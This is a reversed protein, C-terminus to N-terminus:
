IIELKLSLAKLAYMYFERIIVKEVELLDEDYELGLVKSKISEHLKMISGRLIEPSVDSSTIQRKIRSIVNNPQKSFAEFAAFEHYKLLNRNALNLDIINQQDHEQFSSLQYKGKDKVVVGYTIANLFDEKMLVLDQHSKIQNEVKKMLDIVSEVRRNSQNITTVLRPWSELATLLGVQSNENIKKFADMKFAENEWSNLLENIRDKFHSLKQLSLESIPENTDPLQNIPFDFVEYYQINEEVYFPRLTKLILANKMVENARQHAAEIFPVKIDGRVEKPIPSPLEYIWNEKNSQSLHIGIRRKNNAIAEHYIKELENIGKMAFLPIGTQVQTVCIKDFNSRLDVSSVGTANPVKGALANKVAEDIRDSDAPYSIGKWTPFQLTGGFTSRAFMPDSNNFLKPLVDNLLYNDIEQKDGLEYSLFQDVSQHVFKNFRQDIFNAILWPIDMEDELLWKDSEDLMMKIFNETELKIDVQAVSSEILKMIRPNDVNVLDWSYVKGHNEDKVTTSSTLIEANDDFIKILYDLLSTFIEFKQNNEMMIENLVIDLVEKVTTLLAAEYRAEYVNEVSKIFRDRSLNRILSFSKLFAIEAEKSITELHEIEILKQDRLKTTESSLALIQKRVDKFNANLNNVMRIFYYPGRAVDKVINTVENSICSMLEEVVHGKKKQTAQTAADCWRESLDNILKPNNRLKEVSFINGNRKLVEINPIVPGIDVLCKEKLNSIKINCARLFKEVDEVSPSQNFIKEMRNFLYATFLTNIKNRPLSVEAYGVATYIYNAHYDKKITASLARVNSVYSRFPQNQELIKQKQGEELDSKISSNTILNIAFQAAVTMAHDYGNQPIYGTNSGHSMIIHCLDYPATRQIIQLSGYTENFSEKRDMINMFYDLEMLAAMSNQKVVPAYEYPFGTQAMTVDHTFLFAIHEFRDSLGLEDLIAKLFYSFLINGSGTGGDIGMFYIINVKDDSNLGKTMEKFINIFERKVSEVNQIMQLKGSQRVGNAGDGMKEIMTDLDDAIWDKISQPVIKKNKLFDAIERFQISSFETALDIQTGRYNLKQLEQHTTDLIKLKINSPLIKKNGNEDLGVPVLELIEHKLRLIATGAKGGLGVVLTRNTVSQKKNTELSVGTGKRIDFKMAQIRFKRKIENANRM